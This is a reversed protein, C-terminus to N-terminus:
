ELAEDRVLLVSALGAGCLGVDAPLGLVGLHAQNITAKRLTNDKRVLRMILSVFRGLMNIM